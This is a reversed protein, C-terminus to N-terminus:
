LGFAAIALPNPKQKSGKSYLRQVEEPMFTTSLYNPNSPRWDALPNTFTGHGNDWAVQSPVM